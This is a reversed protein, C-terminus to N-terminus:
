AHSWDDRCLPCELLAHRSSSNPRLVLPDTERSSKWSISIDLIPLVDEVICGSM